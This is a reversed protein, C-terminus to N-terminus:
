TTGSLPICSLLDSDVVAPEYTEQGNGGDREKREGAEQGWEGEERRDLLDHV